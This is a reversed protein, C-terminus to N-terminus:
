SIVILVTKKNLIHALKSISSVGTGSTYEGSASARNTGTNCVQSVWAIGVEPGTSYQIFLIIKTFLICVRLFSSVRLQDNFAM